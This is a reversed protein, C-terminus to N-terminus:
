NLQEQLELARSYFLHRENQTITNLIAQANETDGQKLYALTLYWAAAQQFTSTTNQRIAALNQIATAPDELELAIMSRYFRTTDSQTPLAEFLRLAAAYERREYTQLAQALDTLSVAEGKTIPAIDNPYAQYYEAFYDQGARNLNQWLFIGAIVLVALSAALSLYRRIPTARKKPALPIVKASESSTGHEQQEMEKAAEEFLGQWEAVQAIDQYLQVEQALAEDKAIEAEFSQRAQAPLEGKVYSEIQTYDFEKDM